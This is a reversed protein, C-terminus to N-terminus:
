HTLVLIVALGTLTAALIVWSWRNAFNLTWGIGLRKEVWLASDEPNYYVVGWKWNPDAALRSQMFILVGVVVATAALIVWLESGLRGDPFWLPRVALWCTLAAMLYTVLIMLKVAGARRTSSRMVSFMVILSVALGVLMVGYVGLPSRSAWRDPGGVGWHVPFREPIRDWNLALYIAAAAYLALPGLFAAPWRRNEVDNAM